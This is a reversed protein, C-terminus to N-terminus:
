LEENKYQHAAELLREATFFTTIAHCEYLDATQPHHIKGVCSSLSAEKSSPESSTERYLYFIGLATTSAWM